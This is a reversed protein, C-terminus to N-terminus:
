RVCRVSSNGNKSGNASYGSNFGVIWAYSPNLSNTTSSWYYSSNYTFYNTDISPNYSSYDVISQLEKINPLRWDTYWWLNLNACYTKANNWTKAWAVTGNSQWYLWTLSDKIVSNWWASNGSDFSFRQEAQYNNWVNHASDYYWNPVWQWPLYSSKRNNAISAYVVATLMILSLLILLVRKINKM